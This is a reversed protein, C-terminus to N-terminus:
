LNLNIGFVYLKTMPFNESGGREPDYDLKTFTFLNKGTAYVRVGKIVKWKLVSSPINYAVSINRIRAYSGNQYGLTSLYKLGGNKNPRPYANTPNEPTWYDLGATSNGVGQADFRAYRDSNIMQGVRAYLLVNLDFGKFKVTNDFGGSWKPRPSGLIVRDNVADIKGDGNVDRVKIEGPLQTPSLKSAADAESTQWIGLKEYDYFVSIPQGIFWGNGIDNGDTVLESIREQNKTFTFNSTWTLNNTRINTSTLAIEIGRNNTKGINQKVTTVGTTPPLGRDLLLDSTRTDYLDVSASIRGDLLGFDLGLNATNSLEWGLAANGVNRSFTYAPLAVEDFGFAVRTLTTQTAYPGSPDNGAVGYSVRVKLDSLAKVNQMFGEEIIRWAFAASPFFTWKNGPALKSSGDKRATLTLLYRDRFGYNLRGAYSVLTNKSYASNIKIEETASGLSYFLQSPLLQNVGSASANQSTSGLYSGIGTFSFNHQGITKQYSIVNEWNITRGSSTNFTALSKGSLSRDISKPSSFAGNESSSLNAGITSRFTFGKFPALEVYGNTLIRTTLVTNNFVGPQEDSLPNASQGDLLLFAFNGNEDYLSGLPSIKNAQNLPDRRVSQNYYTLQSQLGVKMWNNLTYDVNLRATYRKIEDLKLIGKENYYDVSVYSKLKDTGARFGIQYDQQLGNHILADQFDTWTGSQLAKYDAVNTFIAPDDAPSKWVGAARWAERKLDRYGNIDMAKPYMSVQSVGSYANFSIDPAGSKGKKTTILIVGNAGRSGYIAISSADKLVEMSEIDNSNIDGLNGYQVGDVIILPSNNGGISRNGRITINVGSGAQGSSRTIDAGAIKGQVAELVNATPVEKLQESKLQVVSGTLDKKRVSGYGIVIVEDLASEDPSLTINFIAQAGLQVDQSKYGVFSFTLLATTEDPVDLSFKGNEDTSTGKSTGKIVVSVGPLLVNKEDKVTGSVKRDVAPLAANKIEPQNEPQRELVIQGGVLRYSLKLPDLLEDLVQDLRRKTASITVIQQVNIRKSSYVIRAGSQKELITLVKEFRQNQANVTVLAMMVDQESSAQVASNGLYCVAFWVSFLLLKVRSLTASLRKSPLPETKKM